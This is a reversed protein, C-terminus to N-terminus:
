PAATQVYSVWGDIRNAGSNKTCLANASATKMQVVGNNAVAIGGNAAFQMAGTLATEGTACATGTGYIFSVNTAAGAVVHLGCVYVINSASLAVLEVNGSTSNGISVTTVRAYDACPDGQRIWLRGLQDTNATANDGATGASSAATDRRVTGAMRLQAGATEAADELYVIERVWNSGDYVYNLPVVLGPVQAGAITGDDTDTLGGQCRDWTSGNYCMLFAAVGPVTPNATANALAAAAPMETDATVSGSDVIVNLAGAGDTVTVSGTINSTINGSSDINLGRENGANDRITVYLSRNGSMRVVGADGEDVSDPAVNDFMAGMPTVSTTAPTFAADDVIATGGSGAGSIINVPLPKTASVPALTNSTDEWMIANGTITSDVDGETYQTGGGISAAAGDADVIMTKLQGKVGCNVPAQKGNEYTPSTSNAVCSDAWASGSRWDFSCCVGFALLLLSRKM